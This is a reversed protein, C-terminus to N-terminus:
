LGLRWMVGLRRHCQTAFPLCCGCAHSTKATLTGSGRSPCWRNFTAMLWKLSKRSFPLPQMGTASSRTANHCRPVTYAHSSFALRSFCIICKTSCVVCRLARVQHASAAILAAGQSVHVDAEIMGAHIGVIHDLLTRSGSMNCTAQLYISSRSCM